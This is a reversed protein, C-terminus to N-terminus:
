KFSLLKLSYWFVSFHILLWCLYIIKNININNKTEDSIKPIRAKANRASPNTDSNKNIYTMLNKGTAMANVTSSFEFFSNNVILHNLM